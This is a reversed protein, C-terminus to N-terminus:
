EYEKFSCNEAYLRARTCTEKERNCAESQSFSYLLLEKVVTIDYNDCGDALPCLRIMDFTYLQLLSAKVHTRQSFLGVVDINSFDECTV